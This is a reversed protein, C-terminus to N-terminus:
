GVIEPTQAKQANEISRYLHIFALQTVAITVVMGVFLALFGIINIAVAALGFLFLHLRHGSTVRWSEKLAEIPGMDKEVVAFDSFSFAIMLFIGPVILCILGLVTLIGGVLTLGM